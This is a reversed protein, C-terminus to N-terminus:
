SRSAAAAGIVGGISLKAGITAGGTPAVLRFPKNGGIAARDSTTGPLINIVGGPAVAAAAMAITRFPSCARGDALLGSWGFMVWVELPAMPTARAGITVDGIPAVLRFHKGNGVATRDYSVGPLIRILGGDAVAAEAKALTNYPRPLTEPSSDPFDFQVWVDDKRVPDTSEATGAIPERRARDRAGLVVGGIPAFLRVRKGSGIPSRETTTGPVIRILGGDAVAALAAAVSDFPQCVDGESPGVYDFDLWVEHNFGAQEIDGQENIRRPHCLDSMDLTIKTDLFPNTIEVVADSNTPSNMVSGNLFRDKVNGADGLADTPDRNGYSISQVEAGFDRFLVSDRRHWIMAALRNGNATAYEFERGNELILDPNRAMVDIIFGTFTMDPHLWTDFAELLAFDGVQFIALYFGPGNGPENLSMNVFRWNGLQEGNQFVWDPLHPYHGCAFDPAVGYNRVLDLGVGFGGFQILETAQRGLGTPMFSTTVAVGLQQEQSGPGPVLGAFSPDIAYGTPAGGATILYSPSGVFIEMNDANRNGGPEDEDKRGTRHLRQFYRRHQDNVFLDHIPPPLRYDSLVEMTLTFADRNIGWEWPSSAQYARTNGAQMAFWPGMPDPGPQGAVLGVTMFGSPDHLVNDGENRRRFPVMRRLDNSSVAMHASIYDLVMRAGLRVEHDYAYTCLNLLAWRTEEQYNKSNYESFDDRLIRQLLTLILLTSSPYDVGGNRRNDYDSQRNRQFLLQNTLYRATAITLIHNETEGIDKHAAIPSIYGAREWDNPVRGSTVIDPCNPRHITGHALLVTILREQAEPSLADYYQYAMGVLHMESMDYNGELTDGFVVDYTGETGPGISGCWGPNAALVAASVMSRLGKGVRPRDPFFDLYALASLCKATPLYITPAADGYAKLELL